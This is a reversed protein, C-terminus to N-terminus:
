GEGAEVLGRTAAYVKAQRRSLAQWAAAAAPDPATTEAESSMASAAQAFGKYWGAGVAATMGAGLASAEESRSRRVPLGTADAVMRTWLPSRSGGGVALIREAQIGLGRMTTLARAAELTMAELSARYLHPLGHNAALGVFAARANPDWHPDMCGTLHTSALVGGSGVPLRVAEAELRDFVGPDARGGAFADVFWNVFYAGARQVAELFYGEGTASVLTRWARDIVPEASWAGVLLATGLNLYIRGARVANVGLGACQGDGGGAFVPTGPRLGTAAAAADSLRGVLTGPAVAEPFRSPELGVAALIAASWRKDKIDFVGFPDASTWSAVARGTLKLCLYGHVDVIAAAQNLLAPHHRRLWALRYVVPTLDAPKGTIRHLYGAGLRATLPGIEGLGREDLWVMGPALAEGDADLLAVTERQNSIALGEIRAPDIGATAEKLAAGASAWWDKPDQEVHGPAPTSLPLPSRGVAVANGERDWVIAKTSQTSSDM